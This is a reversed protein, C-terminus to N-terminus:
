LRESSGGGMGQGGTLPGQHNRSETSGEGVTELVVRMESVPEAMREMHTAEPDTRIGSISLAKRQEEIHSYVLDRLCVLILM